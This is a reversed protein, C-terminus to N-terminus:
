FDCTRRLYWLNAGKVTGAQVAGEYGLSCTSDNSNWNAHNCNTDVYCTAKCTEQDGAAIKTSKTVTWDPYHSWSHTCTACTSRQQLVWHRTGTETQLTADSKYGFYCTNDSKVDAFVCNKDLFCGKKCQVECDTFDTAKIDQKTREAAGTDWVSKWDNSCAEIKKADMTTIVTPAETAAPKQTTKSGECQAFQCRVGIYGTPCRCFISENTVVLSGGNECLHCGPFSNDVDSERRVLFASSSTVLLLFCCLLSLLTTSHM